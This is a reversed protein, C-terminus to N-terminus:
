IHVEEGLVMLFRWWARVAVKREKKMTLSPTSSYFLIFYFCRLRFCNGDSHFSVSSLYAAVLKFAASWSPTMDGHCRHPLMKPRKQKSEVQWDEEEKRRKGEFTVRGGCSVLQSM